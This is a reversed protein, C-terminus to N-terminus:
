GFSTPCQLGNFPSHAIGFNPSGFKACRSWCVFPKPLFKARRVIHLIVKPKARVVDLTTHTAILLLIHQISRYYGVRHGTFLSSTKVSSSAPNWNCYPSANDSQQLSEVIAVKGMERKCKQIGGFESTWGVNLNPFVIRRLGFVGTTSWLFLHSLALSM